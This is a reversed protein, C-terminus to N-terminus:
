TTCKLEELHEDCLGVHPWPPVPQACKPYYGVAHRWCQKFSETFNTTLVGFYAQAMDSEPLIGSCAALDEPEWAM